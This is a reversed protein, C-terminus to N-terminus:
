ELGRLRLTEAPHDRRGESIHLYGVNKLAATIAAHITTM